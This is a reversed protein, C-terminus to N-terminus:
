KKIVPSYECWSGTGAPVLMLAMMGIWKWWSGAGM